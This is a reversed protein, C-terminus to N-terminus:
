AKIVKVISINESNKMVEHVSAPRYDKYKEIFTCLIIQKNKFINSFYDKIINVNETDLLENPEDILFFSSRNSYSILIGLLALLLKSKEGNSLTAMPYMINTKPIKIRPIGDKDLICLYNLQKFIHPSKEKLQTNVNEIFCKFLLFRVKKLFKLRDNISYLKRNFLSIKGTHYDIRKILQAQNKLQSLLIELEVYIEDFNNFIIDRETEKKLISDFKSRFANMTNILDENFPFFSDSKKSDLDQLFNFIYNITRIMKLEFPKFNKNLDDISQLKKTKESAQIVLELRNLFEICIEGIKKLNEKKMSSNLIVQFRRNFDSLIEISSDLRNKTKSKIVVQIDKLIQKLFPEEFKKSDDANILISNKRYYDLYDPDFSGRVKEIVIRIKNYIKQTHTEGGKQKKLLLDEKLQLYDQVIEFKDILDYNDYQNLENDIQEQTKEFHTNVDEVLKYFDEPAYERRKHLEYQLPQHCDNNECIIIDDGYKRREKICDECYFKKCKQCSVGEFGGRYKPIYGGEVGIDMMEGEKQSENLECGYCIDSSQIFFLKNKNIYDYISIPTLKTILSFAESSLKKLLIERKKELDKKKKILHNMNFKEELFARIDNRSISSYSWLFKFEMFLSSFVESKVFNIGLDDFREWIEEKLQKRQKMITLSTQPWPELITADESGRFRRYTPMEEKEKEIWEKKIKEINTFMENTKENGIKSLLEEGDLLLEQEGNRDIKREITIITEGKRLELIVSCSSKGIQILWPNAIFINDIEKEGEGYPNLILLSFLIAEIISTKGSGNLGYVVNIYKEFNISQDTFSKFNKITLSKISISEQKDALRKEISKLYKEYKELLIKEVKKELEMEFSDKLKNIYNREPIINQFIDGLNTGGPIFKYFVKDYNEKVEILLDKKIRRSESDYKINKQNKDMQKGLQVFNIYKFYDRDFDEKLVYDSQLLFNLFELPFSNEKRWKYYTTRNFSKNESLLNLFKGLAMNSNKILEDIKEVYKEELYVYIKRKTFLDRIEETKAEPFDFDSSEYWFLLIRIISSLNSVSFYTKNTKQNIKISCYKEFFQSLKSFLIENPNTSKFYHRITSSIGKQDKVIVLNNNFLFSILLKAFNKILKDYNNSFSKTLEETKRLFTKTTSVRNYYEEILKALEEVEEKETM